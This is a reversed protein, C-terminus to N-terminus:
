SGHGTGQGDVRCGEHAVGEGDLGLVIEEEEAMEDVFTRLECLSVPPHLEVLETALLLSQFELRFSSDLAGDAFNLCLRALYQILRLLNNAFLALLGRLSSHAILTLSIHSIVLTLLM